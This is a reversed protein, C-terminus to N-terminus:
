DKFEDSRIGLWTEYNGSKEQCYKTFPVLKMRDTCFCEELTLFGYKSIMEKFPNLDPGISDTLWFGNGVGLPSRYACLKLKFEDNVKRICVNGHEAGTDM